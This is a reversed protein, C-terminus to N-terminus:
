LFLSLFLFRAKTLGSSNLTVTAVKRLADAGMATARHPPLLPRPRPRAGRRANDDHKHKLGIEKAMESGGEEDPGLLEFRSLSTWERIKLTSSATEHGTKGAVRKLAQTPDKGQCKGSALM